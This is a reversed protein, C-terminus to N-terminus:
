RRSIDELDDGEDVPEDFTESDDAEPEGVDQLNECISFKECETLHFYGKCADSGSFCCFHEFCITMCEKANDSSAQIHENQCAKQVMEPGAQKLIGCVKPWDDCSTGELPCTAVEESWCCVHEECANHCEIYGAISGRVNESSCIDTLSRGRITTKGAQVVSAASLVCLFLKMM